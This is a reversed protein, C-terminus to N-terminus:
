AVRRRQQKQIDKQTIAPVQRPRYGQPTQMLTTKKKKLFLGLLFLLVGLVIGILGITGGIFYGVLGLLIGLLILKFRM